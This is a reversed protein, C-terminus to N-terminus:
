RFRRQTVPGTVWAGPGDTDRRRSTGFELTLNVTPESVTAAQYSEGTPLDWEVAWYRKVFPRLRQAVVRPTSYSAHELLQGPSLVRGFFHEPAPSVPSTKKRDVEDDM